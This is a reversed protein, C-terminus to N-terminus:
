PKTFDNIAQLKVKLEDVVVQLQSNRCVLKSVESLDDSPGIVVFCKKDVESKLLDDFKEQLENRQRIAEDFQEQLVELQAILEDEGSLAGEVPRRYYGVPFSGQGKVPYQCVTRGFCGPDVPVWSGRICVQDGHQLVEGVEVERYADAEEDEDEDEEALTDIFDVLEQVSNFRRVEPKPEPVDLDDLLRRAFAKWCGHGEAWMRQLEDAFASVEKYSMECNM